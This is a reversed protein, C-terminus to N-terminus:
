RTRKKFTIIVFPLQQHVKNINWALSLGLGFVTCLLGWAPSSLFLHISDSEDALKRPIWSTNDVISQLLLEEYLLWTVWVRVYEKRESYAMRCLVDWQSEYKLVISIKPWSSEAALSLRLESDGRANLWEIWWCAPIRSTNRARVNLGPSEWQKWMSGLADSAVVFAMSAM